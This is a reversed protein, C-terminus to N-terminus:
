LHVQSHDACRKNKWSSCLAWISWIWVLLLSSLLSPQNPYLLGLEQTIHQAHILACRHLSIIKSSPFRPTPGLFLVLAGIGPGWKEWGQPRFAIVFWFCEWHCSQAQKQALEEPTEPLFSSSSHPHPLKSSPLPATCFPCLRAPATM